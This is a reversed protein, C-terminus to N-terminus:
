LTWTQGEKEALEALQLDAQAVIARATAVIARFAGAQLPRVGELANAREMAAVAIQLAVARSAEVEARLQDALPHAAIPRPEPTM